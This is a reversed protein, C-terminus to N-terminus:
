GARSTMGQPIREAELGEILRQVEGMRLRWAARNVVLRGSIQLLVERESLGNKELTKGTEVLDVIADALGVVPALEVSGRLELIEIGLGKRALLDTALRPYKTAIRLARGSLPVLKGEAPGPACLSLRCAGIRLDLPELLDCGSERIQDIGVIGVDAAGREVYVPVDPDKLLLLETGESAPVVLLRTRHVDELPTIGVTALRELAAPLLRGKALAIRFPTKV